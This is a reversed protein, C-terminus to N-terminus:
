PIYKNPPPYAYQNYVDIPNISTDHPFTERYINVPMVPPVFTNSIMPAPTYYNPTWQYPWSHTSTPAHMQIGITNLQSPIKMASEVLSIFVTFRNILSFIIRNKVLECM